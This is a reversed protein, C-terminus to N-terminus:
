TELVKGNTLKYRYVSTDSSAYLYDKYLAMGTGTNNGFMVTQDARGDGNTDNLEVIGKGDNLKELKVFVTGVNDVVIHRAKGLNDAFVTAQFGNALKIDNADPPTITRKAVVHSRVKTPKEPKTGALSVTAVAAVLLVEKM